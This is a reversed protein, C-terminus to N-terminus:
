NESGSTSRFDNVREQEINGFTSLQNTQIRDRIEPFFNFMTYEDEV